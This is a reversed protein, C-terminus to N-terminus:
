SEEFFDKEPVLVFSNMDIIKEYPIIRKGEAIINLIRDKVEDTLIKWVQGFYTHRSLFQLTLQRIKNKEYDTATSAIKALSSQYYKITDIIKVQFGINAFNVTSLNTGVISLDNTGWCASRYGKLMYFFEFNLFNHGILSFGMQNERVKWNCFDHVYGFIKGSIPSHQVDVKFNLIRYLNEFFGNTTATRFTFKNEPFDM